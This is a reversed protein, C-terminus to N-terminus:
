EIIAKNKKNNHHIIKFTELLNNLKKDKKILFIKWLSKNINKLAKRIKLHHIYVNNLLSILQKKKNLKILITNM